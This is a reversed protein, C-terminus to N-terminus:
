PGWFKLFGRLLSGRVGHKTYEDLNMSPGYLFSLLHSACIHYLYIYTYIYIGPNCLFSGCFKLFILHPTSWQLPYTIYHCDDWFYNRRTTGVKVCEEPNQCLMQVYKHFRNQCRNPCRNQCRNQCVIQCRNLCENQCEIQCRNQCRRQCPCQRVEVALALDWQAAGVSIQLECNLDPLLVSVRLGCNLGLLLFLLLRFLSSPLFSPHISPRFSSAVGIFDLSGWSSLFFCPVNKVLSVVVVVIRPMVVVVRAPWQWEKCSLVQPQRFITYGLIQHKILMSEGLFKGTQNGVGAVKTAIEDLLHFIAVFKLRRDWSRPIVIM